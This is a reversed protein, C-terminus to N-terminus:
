QRVLQATGELHKWSSASAAAIRVYKMMKRLPRVGYQSIKRDLLLPAVAPMLRIPMDLLHNSKVQQNNM